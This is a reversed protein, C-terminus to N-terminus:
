HGKTHSHLNENQFEKTSQSCLQVLRAHGNAAELRLEHELSAQELDLLWRPVVWGNMTMKAFIPELSVAQAVTTHVILGSPQLPNHAAVEKTTM